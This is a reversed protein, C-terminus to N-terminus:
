ILSQSLNTGVLEQIYPSCCPFLQDINTFYLVFNSHYCIECSEVIYHSVEEPLCHVVMLAVMLLTPMPLELVAVVEDLALAPHDQGPHDQYLMPPLHPIVMPSAAM